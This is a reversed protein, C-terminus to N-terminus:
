FDDNDIDNCWDAYEGKSFCESEDVKKYGKALWEDSIHGLNHNNVDRTEFGDHQRKGLLHYWHKPEYVGTSQVVDKTKYEM